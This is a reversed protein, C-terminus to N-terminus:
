LNFSITIAVSINDQAKRVPKLRGTIPQVEVHESYEENTAMNDLIEFYRVAINEIKEKEGDVLLNFRRELENYNIVENNDMMENLLTALALSRFEESALQQLKYQKCAKVFENKDKETLPKYYHAYGLKNWSNM